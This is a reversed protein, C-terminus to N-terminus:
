EAPALWFLRNKKVAHSRTMLNSNNVIDSRALAVHNKANPPLSGNLRINKAGSMLSGRVRIKERQPLSGPVLIKQVFSSRALFASQEFMSSRALLGSEKM